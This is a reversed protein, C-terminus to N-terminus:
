GGATHAAYSEEEAAVAVLVKTGSSGSKIEFSGGLQRVRERMGAIGVGLTATGEVRSLKEASMGKGNDEIEM